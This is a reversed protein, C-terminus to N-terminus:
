LWDLFRKWTGEREERDERSQQKQFRYYAFDGQRAAYEAIEDIDAFENSVQQYRRWAPGYQGRRWYFDAVFLEHEAIRTRAQTIFESADRAYVTDPFMQQVRTFYQIALHLNDTPRDISRFQKLYSMGVQFLVYPISEHGPHLSEFELYTQVAAEYQESLFYADALALEAASTFPSFPYRDKLKTFFTIAQRYEKAEMAEFGAQALEQATDEPPTLFYYDIIGCGSIFFTLLLCPLLARIPTTKM